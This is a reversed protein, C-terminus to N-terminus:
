CYLDLKSIKKHIQSAVDDHRDFRYGRTSTSVPTIPGYFVYRSAVIEVDTKKPFEWLGDTKYTLFSMEVDTADLEVDPAFVKMVKGWYYRQGYYVAYYLGKKKDDLTAVVINIADLLENKHNIGRLTDVTLPSDTDDDVESADSVDDEAANEEVVMEDNEDLFQVDPEDDYEPKATAKKKKRRGVRNKKEEAEKEKEEIGKMFEDDMVVRPKLDMRKRKKTEQHTPAKIKSLVLEEFSTNGREKSGSPSGAVPTGTM